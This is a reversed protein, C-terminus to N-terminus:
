QAPEKAPEPESASEPKWMAAMEEIAVAQLQKAHDAVIKTLGRTIALKEVRATQYWKRWSGGPLKEARPWLVRDLQDHLHTVSVGLRAAADAAHIEGPEPNTARRPASTKAMHM